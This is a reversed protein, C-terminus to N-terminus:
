TPALFQAQGILKQPEASGGVRPVLLAKYNSAVSGTIAQIEGDPRIGIRLLRSDGM